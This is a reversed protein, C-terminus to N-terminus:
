PKSNELLNNELRVAATNVLTIPDARSPWRVPQPAPLIRNDRVVYDEAGFGRVARM